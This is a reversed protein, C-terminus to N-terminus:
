MESILCQMRETLKQAKLETHVTAKAQIILMSIDEQLLHLMLKITLNLPLITKLRFSKKLILLRARFMQLPKQAASSIVTM